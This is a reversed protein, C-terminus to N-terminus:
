TGPLKIRAGNSREITIEEGGTANDGDALALEEESGTWGTAADSIRGPKRLVGAEEYDIQDRIVASVAIAGAKAVLVREAPSAGTGVQEGFAIAEEAQAASIEAPVVTGATPPRLSYEPPVTLPPKKVVRFEDPIGARSGGGSSCAATVALAAGLSMLTTFRM